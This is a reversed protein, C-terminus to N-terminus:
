TFSMLKTTLYADLGESGGESGYGSEKRGGFPTEPLSVSFSNIGVLGADLEAAIRRQRAASQTFAYAALAYPLANAASLGEDVNRMPNIIAVPGFPEERMARAEHSVNTLVTPRYFYGRAGFREGGINLTGGRSTADAVLSEIAALRRANALPGMRSTRDLGNGIPWAAAEAMFTEVFDEFLNESVYFRTPAICVQGANRLKAAVSLRAVAKADVDDCVLVPAHGGLELTIPKVQAGAMAALEKGVATSGTFSIKAISSHAILRRSIMAPDGFVINLVGHPLGAEELADYLALATAPTEEAPKLVCTCGAALAAAIKRAVQTAPFNWPTFAAVPGIPNRETQFLTHPLATPIIRGYVRRGEEACWDFWDAAVIFEREAEALPKGQERVMVSALTKVRDRLLKAARHLIDGRKVPAERRWLRFARAAAECAADLDSATAIPLAAIADGSAPDIVPRTDRAAADIRAGDVVLALSPYVSASAPTSLRAATV